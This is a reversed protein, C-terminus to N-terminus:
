WDPVALPLSEVGWRTQAMSATNTSTIEEKIEAKVLILVQVEESM